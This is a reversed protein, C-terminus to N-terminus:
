GIVSCCGCNVCGGKSLGPNLGKERLRRNLYSYIRMAMEPSPPSLNELKSGKLPRFISPYPIAGRNIIEDIGKMTEEEPELGIILWSSVQSPGFVDVADSLASLYRERKIKSKGPCFKKRLEDNYLELNISISDVGSEKLFIMADKGVPPIQVYVSLGEKKGIRAIDGYIKAGSDKKNMTGSNINLERYSFGKERLNRIIYEVDEPSKRRGDGQLACFLCGNGEDKYFCDSIAIALVDRGHQQLISQFERGDPLLEKYWQPDPILEAECLPIEDRYIFGDRYFYPSKEVFDEFVAINVPCEEGNKKLIFYLGESLSARKFRYRTFNKKEEGLRVGYCLLEVKLRQLSTMEM